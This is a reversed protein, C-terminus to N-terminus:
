KIGCFSQYRFMSPSITVHHWFFATKAPQRRVTKPHIRQTDIRSGRAQIFTPPLESNCCRMNQNKKGSNLIKAAVSLFIHWSRWKYWITSSNLILYYFTGIFDCLWINKITKHNMWEAYLRFWNQNLTFSNAFFQCNKNKLHICLISIPYLIQVVVFPICYIYESERSFIISKTRQYIQRICTADIFDSLKYKSFWTSCNQYMIPM